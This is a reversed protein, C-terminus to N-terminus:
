NAHEFSLFYMVEFSPITYPYVKCFKLMCLLQYPEKAREDADLNQSFKDSTVKPSAMNSGPYSALRAVSLM